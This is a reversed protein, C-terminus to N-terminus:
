EFLKKRFEKDWFLFKPTRELAKNGVRYLQLDTLKRKSISEIEDRLHLIVARPPLRRSKKKRKNLELKDYVLCGIELTRPDTKNILRKSVWDFVDKSKVGYQKCWEITDAWSNPDLQDLKGM